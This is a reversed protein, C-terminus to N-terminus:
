KSKLHASFDPKAKSKASPFFAYSLVLLLGLLHVIIAGGIVLQITPPLQGVWKPLLAHLAVQLSEATVAGAASASM